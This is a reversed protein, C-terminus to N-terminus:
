MEPLKSSPLGLAEVRLLDFCGLAFLCVEIMNPEMSIRLGSSYVEKALMCYFRLKLLSAHTRPSAAM